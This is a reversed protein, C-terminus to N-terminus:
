FDVAIHCGKTQNYNSEKCHAIGRELPQLDHARRLPAGEKVRQLSCVIRTRKHLVRTNSAERDTVQYAASIFFFWAQHARKRHYNHDRVIAYLWSSM